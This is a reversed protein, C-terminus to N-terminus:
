LFYCSRAERGRGGQVLILPYCWPQQCHRTSGLVVHTHWSLVLGMAMVAWNAWPQCCLSGLARPSVM